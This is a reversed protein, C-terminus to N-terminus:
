KTEEYHLPDKDELSIYDATANEGVNLTWECGHTFGSKYAKMLQDENAGQILWNKLEIIKEVIEDKHRVYITQKSM